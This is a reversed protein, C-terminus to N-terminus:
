CVPEGCKMNTHSSNHALSAKLRLYLGEESSAIGM